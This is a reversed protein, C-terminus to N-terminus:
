VEEVSVELAKRGCADLLTEWRLFTLFTTCRSTEARNRRWREPRDTDHFARQVGESAPPLNFDSRTVACHTKCSLEDM